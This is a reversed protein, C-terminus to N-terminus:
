NPHKGSNQTLEIEKSYSGPWAAFISFICDYKYLRAKRRIRASFALVVVNV